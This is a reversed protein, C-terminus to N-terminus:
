HVQVGNEIKVTYAVPFPCKVGIDSYYTKGDYEFTHAHMQGSFTGDGLNMVHPLGEYGDVDVIIM